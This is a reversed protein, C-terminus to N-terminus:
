TRGKRHRKKAPEQHSPPPSLGPNAFHYKELHERNLLDRVTHYTDESVLYETVDRPLSSEMIMHIKYRM